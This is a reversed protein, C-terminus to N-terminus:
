CFFFLARPEFGGLSRGGTEKAWFLSWSEMHAVWGGLKFQILVALYFEAEAMKRGGKCVMGDTNENRSKICM